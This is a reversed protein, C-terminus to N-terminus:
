DPLDIRQTLGTNSVPPVTSQNRLAPARQWVLRTGTHQLWKAFGASHIIDGAALVEGDEDVLLPMQGREWPPVGLDQLVHKLAHSHTRGPLRIREGGRRARVSVAQDFRAAPELLLTDGTPLLLPAPGEWPAQWDNALPPRQLGAHVLDRWARVRAGAWAFSADADPASPLVEAEIRAIGKAPLPPLGCADIWRRLVRARRAPTMERLAGRDLIAPDPTRVSALAQTDGEELLGAAEGALVASRAFMADAHPWRERLLPLVRHRLFNRDFDASANGPDEIWDLGHGRAYALIEDRRSDLLPRWMWGRGFRRWRRMAALGDVGSGRLARLLFTEAQDDRHHALALVEGERLADAFAAHRAARAAGELGQGARAVDVRVVELAVGLKMCAARCHDAWRGSDPHLGHDVHIARVGGAYLGPQTVLLHLLVTSDLGGSCAVLLPVGEFPPSPASLPATRM